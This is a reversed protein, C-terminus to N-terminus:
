EFKKIILFLDMLLDENERMPRTREALYEQVLQEPMKVRLLSVEEGIEISHGDAAVATEFDFERWHDAFFEGATGSRLPRGMGQGSTYNVPGDQDAVWNTCQVQSYISKRPDSRMEFKQTILFEAPYNWPMTHGLKPTWRSSARRNKLEGAYGAPLYVRWQFVMPEDTELRVIQPVLKQEESFEGFRSSLSTFEEQLRQKENRLRYTHYVGVLIVTILVLNLLSSFKM